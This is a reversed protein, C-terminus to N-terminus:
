MSIIPVIISMCLESTVRQAGADISNDVLEKVASSLDTIAQGAVIRQIAQSPIPQILQPSQEEQEKQPSPSAIDDQPRNDNSDNGDIATAAASRRDDAAM